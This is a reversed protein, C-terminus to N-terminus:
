INSCCCCFFTASSIVDKSCLLLENEMFTSSYLLLSFIEFFFFRKSTLQKNKREVSNFTLVEGLMANMKSQLDNIRSTNAIILKLRAGFSSSFFFFVFVYLIYGNNASDWMWMLTIFRHNKNGFSILWFTFLNM